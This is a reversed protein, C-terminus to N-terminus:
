KLNEVLYVGLAIYSGLFVIGAVFFAKGHHEKATSLKEICKEAKSVSLDRYM